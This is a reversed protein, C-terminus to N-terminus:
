PLPTFASSATVQIFAPTISTMRSGSPADLTLSAMPLAKAWEAESEASFDVAPAAFTYSEGKM